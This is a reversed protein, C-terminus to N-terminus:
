ETDEILDFLAGLWGEVFAEELREEDPLAGPWPEQTAKKVLAYIARVGGGEVAEFLAKKGTIQFLRNGTYSSYDAARRGVAEAVMPITLHSARKPVITGGRVKFAYYDANNSITAGDEDSTEFHWGSAINQGFEGTKNAGSGLYNDGRWGGAENFGDHYEVAANAASRGGVANLDASKAGDLGDILRTLSASARDRVNVRIGIM